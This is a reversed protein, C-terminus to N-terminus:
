SDSLMVLLKLRSKSCEWLISSCEIFHNTWIFDVICEPESEREGERNRTFIFVLKLLYYWNIKTLISFLNNICIMAFINIWCEYIWYKTTRCTIIISSEWLSESEKERDWCCVTSIFSWILIDLTFSNFWNNKSSGDILQIILFQSYEVKSTLKVSSFFDFKCEIKSCETFYDTTQRNHWINNKLHSSRVSLCICLVHLTLRELYECHTHACLM